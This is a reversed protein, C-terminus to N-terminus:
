RRAIEAVAVVFGPLAILVAAGLVVRGAQLWRPDGLRGLTGPAADPSNRAFLVTGAGVVGIAALAPFVPLLLALPVYGLGARSRLSFPRLTRSVRAAIAAVLMGHTLVIASFVALALWGPGVIDFDPNGSRLPDIRTGAVVLLLGGYAVGGLRGAPLWRRLLLYLIGTAFGFFLGVFVVFGITGGTTVRGVIEDAETVRGQAGDGATAALLRMALRGGAGAVLLGAGLGATVAVTVNGLYRQGASSGPWETVPRFDRGGWLVVAAVGVLVLLGCVAMLIVSWGGM